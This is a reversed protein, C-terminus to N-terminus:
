QHQRVSSLPAVRQHPPIRGHCLWPSSKGTDHGWGRPTAMAPPAQEHTCCERAGAHVMHVLQAPWPGRREKLQDLRVEGLQVRDVVLAEGLRIARSPRDDARDGLPKQRAPDQLVTERAHPTPATRVLVQEGKRAFAAVEARAAVGPPESDPPEPQRLREQRRHRVPLHHLSTSVIGLRSRAYQRYRRDRRPSIARTAARVTVAAIRAVLPSRANDTPIM